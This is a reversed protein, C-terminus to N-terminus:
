LDGLQGAFREAWERTAAQDAGSWTLALQVHQVGDSATVGAPLEALDVYLTGAPGFRAPRGGVTFQACRWARCYSQAV